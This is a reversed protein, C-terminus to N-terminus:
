VSLTGQATDGKLGPDTQTVKVVVTIPLEVDIVQLYARHVVHTLASSLCYKVICDLIFQM